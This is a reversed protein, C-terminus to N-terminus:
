TIGGMRRKKLRVCNEHVEARAFWVHRECTRVSKGRMYVSKVCVCM